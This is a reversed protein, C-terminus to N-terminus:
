NYKKPHFLRPRPTRERSEGDDSPNEAMYVEIEAASIVPNGGSIAFLIQAIENPIGSPINVEYEFKELMFEKLGNAIKSVVALLKGASDNIFSHHLKDAVFDDIIVLDNVSQIRATVTCIFSDKVDEMFDHEYGTIEEFFENGRKQAPGPLNAVIKKAEDKFSAYAEHLVNKVADSSFFLEVGSILGLKDFYAKDEELMKMQENRTNNKEM